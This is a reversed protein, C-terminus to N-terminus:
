YHNETKEEGGFRFVGPTRDHGGQMLLGRRTLGVPIRIGRSGRPRGRSRTRLCVRILVRVEPAGKERYGKNGGGVTTEEIGRLKDSREM